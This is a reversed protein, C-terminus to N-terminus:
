TQSLLYWPFSGTHAITDRRAFEGLRPLTECYRTCRQGGRRQEAGPGSARLIAVTTVIPRAIRTAERGRRGIVIATISIATISIATISIATIPVVPVLAAAATGDGHEAVRAKLL